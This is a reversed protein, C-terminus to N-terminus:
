CYNNSGLILGFLSLGLRIIISSANSPHRTDASHVPKPSNTTCESRVLILPPPRLTIINM